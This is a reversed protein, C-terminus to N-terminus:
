IPELIPRGWLNRYALCKRVDCQLLTDSKLLLVPRKVATSVEWATRGVRGGTEGPRFVRHTPATRPGAPSPPSGCRVAM